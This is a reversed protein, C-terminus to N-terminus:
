INIISKGLVIIAGWDGPAPTTAASTFVVPKDVTGNIFLKSGKTIVLVGKNERVDNKTVSVTIGAPITLTANNKVFVQGDIIYDTNADLALDATISNPLTETNRIPPNVGDKAKNCAALVYVVIFS